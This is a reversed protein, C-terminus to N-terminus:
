NIRFLSIAKIPCILICLVCGWCIKPDVKVKRQKGTGVEVITIANSAGESYVLVCKGCSICKEPDAKVRIPQEYKLNNFHGFYQLSIGQFHKIIKYGKRKM